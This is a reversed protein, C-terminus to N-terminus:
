IPLNFHVNERALTVENIEIRRAMQRLKEVVGTVLYEPASAGATVGVRDVGEIWEPRIEEASDVLYAPIGSKEGVERLRNSNSSNRSGIVILIDINSTMAKVARQRNQTAYCSGERGPAKIGPFRGNLAKIIDATDDLSLTTQTVFALRGPDKVEIAEVDATNSVLHMGGDIQGMTGEVEPHGPHGILVLERGERSHRRVDRHLRTVIPCTADVVRLRRRAGEEAIRRAVGHASFIVVGEDPIERLEEVFVVGKARLGEVVHTNHVIAHRVYVPAGFLELAREVIRIAREVGACFGRPSALFLEM